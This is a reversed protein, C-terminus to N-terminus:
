VRLPIGKPESCSPLQHAEPLDARFLRSAVGTDRRDDAENTTRLETARQPWVQLNRDEPLGRAFTVEDDSLVGPYLRPM